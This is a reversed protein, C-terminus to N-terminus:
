FIPFRLDRCSSSTQNPVLGERDQWSFRLTIVGELKPTCKYLVCYITAGILKPRLSYFKVNKAALISDCFEAHLLGQNPVL